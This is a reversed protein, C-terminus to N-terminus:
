SEKKKNTPVNWSDIKNTTYQSGNKRKKRKM